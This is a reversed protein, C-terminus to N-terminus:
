KKLKIMDSYNDAIMVSQQNPLVISNTKSVDITKPGKFWEAVDAYLDLTTTNSNIKIDVPLSGKRLSVYPSLYGGIHFEFANHLTKCVKSNGELKAAIYGTNWAWYMGKIPDLDGTLVGQTNKLSDVGIAFSLTKYDGNPINKITFSLTKPDEADILHYSEKECFLKNGNLCINSLYFKFVDIRVSDGNAIVYVEDSLVLEKADFMPHINILM